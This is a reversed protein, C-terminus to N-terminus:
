KRGTERDYPGSHPGDQAPGARLTSGVRLANLALRAAAHAPDCALAAKYWSAALDPKGLEVCLQGLRFRLEADHPDHEAQHSLASMEALGKNLAGARAIDRESEATRGLQRLVVGRQYIAAARYPDAAVARDLRELARSPQGDALDLQAKQALLGPHDPADALGADVVARLKDLEGRMRFCEALLDARSAEAVSGKCAALEREAAAAEGLKLLTEALAFRVAPQFRDLALSREFAERAHEHEVNEKFIMGLTRWVRADKPELRAVTELAAVATPRDGVDYAASALWRAADADNPRRELATQFWGVALLPQSAAYLTRGKWFAFEAAVPGDPKVKDLTRVAEALDGREVAARTRLLLARERTSASAEPVALWALAEEQEGSALAEEARALQREPRGHWWGVALGAAVVALVLAIVCRRWTM